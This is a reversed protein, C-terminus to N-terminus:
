NKLNVHYIFALGLILLLNSWDMYYKNKSFLWGFILSLGFMPISTSIITLADQGHFIWSPYHILVFLASSILNAKRDSTFHAIANLFWGRFVSEEFIGVTLVTVIFDYLKMELKFGQSDFFFVLTQYIIAFVLLPLLIKLNPKTTIMEKWSVKLEKNYRKIFFLAYLPWWVIHILFRIAWSVYENWASFDVFVVRITWGGFFILYSLIITKISLQKGTIETRKSNM